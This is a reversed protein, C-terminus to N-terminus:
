ALCFLFHLELSLSLSLNTKRLLFFHTGNHFVDVGFDLLYERNWSKDGSEKRKAKEVFTLLSHQFTPIIYSGWWIGWWFPAGDEGFALLEQCCASLADDVM